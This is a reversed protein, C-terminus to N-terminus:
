FLCPSPSISYPSCSEEQPLQFLIHIQWCYIEVPHFSPVRNESSCLGRSVRQTRVAKRELGLECGEWAMWLYRFKGQALAKSPRSDTPSRYFGTQRWKSPRLVDVTYLVHAGCPTHVSTVGPM